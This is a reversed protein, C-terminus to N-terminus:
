LYTYSFVTYTPNPVTQQKLCGSPPEQVMNGVSLHPKSYMFIKEGM